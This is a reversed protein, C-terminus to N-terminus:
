DGYKFLEFSAAANIYTESVLKEQVWVKRKATHRNFTCNHQVWLYFEYHNSEDRDITAHIDYKYPYVTQDLVITQPLHDDANVPSDHEWLELLAIAPDNAYQCTINGYFRVYNLVTKRTMRGPNPVLPSSYGFLDSSLLLLVLVTSLRIM